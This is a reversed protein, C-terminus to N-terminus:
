ATASSWGLWHVRGHAVDRRRDQALFRQDGAGRRGLAEINTISFAGPRIRRGSQVAFATGFSFPGILHPQVTVQLGLQDAVARSDFYGQVSRVRDGEARIFDAGAVTVSRGTPPLGSMSDTNQWAGGVARRRAGSWQGNDSVSVTEFSLDSFASWLGKAYAAIADGQLNEGTWRTATVDRWQRLQRFDRRRRAPCADFYREGVQM